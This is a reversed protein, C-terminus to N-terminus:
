LAGKCILLRMAEDVADITSDFRLIVPFPRQVLFGKGIIQSRLMGTIYTGINYNLAKEKKLDM